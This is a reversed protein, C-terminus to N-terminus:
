LCEILEGNLYASTIGWPNDKVIEELAQRVEEETTESKFTITVKGSREKQRGRKEADRVRCATEHDDLLSM